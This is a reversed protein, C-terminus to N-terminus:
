ISFCKLAKVPTQVGPKVTGPQNLDLGSLLSRNDDLQRHLYGLPNSIQFSNSLLRRLMPENVHLMEHALTQLFQYEDGSRVCASSGGYRDANLRINNRWDTVGLGNEGMPFPNVSTPPSPFDKPYTDRLTKVAANIEAQTVLGSPDIGSLPNGMVYSYTNVGGSLGIPDSQRYRAHVTHMSGILMVAITMARLFKRELVGM